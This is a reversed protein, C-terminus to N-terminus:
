LEEQCNVLGMQLLKANPVVQNMHSSRANWWPGRSNMSGAHLRGVDVGGRLLTGYQPSVRRSLTRVRSVTVNVATPDYRRFLLYQLM